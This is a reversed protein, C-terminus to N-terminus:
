EEFQSIPIDGEPFSAVIRLEGGMAAIVKGLTSVYMDTQHEIKSVATQSIDLAKALEQQTLERARRIEDLKMEAILARAREAARRQREPSM